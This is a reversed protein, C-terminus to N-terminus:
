EDAAEKREKRIVPEKLLGQKILVYSDRFARGETVFNGPGYAADVAPWQHLPGFTNRRGFVLEIAQPDESVAEYPAQMILADERGIVRVCAANTGAVRIKYLGKELDPLFYRIRGSYFPLGQATIDGAKLRKPLETLVAKKKGGDLRVGFNGLLYVAEIGCTKYYAYTIRLSNVGERICGSPLNIRDFCTDLWKGEAKLPIETEGLSIDTVHELDELVLSCERPVAEAEFRYEMAIVTLPEAPIGNKKEEYWPQLMEGGRWPIGLIDRLERDAKLVECCPLGRGDELTVRVMDLVCINEESLQYEYEEPLCSIKEWIHKEPKPCPRCQATIVLLKEEGAAFTLPIEMRGDKKRFVCAAIKGSMADWLEPYGDEELSLTVKGAAHDRDMNLLFILTEQGTKRMQVAVGSANKGTLKIQQASCSSVIKEKEFPIQQARRALERVKESPQVDVYGPAEGAFVLRGGQKRYEELLEWTTTRMTEMGAVLVTHYACKGVCLLGDRVSGHRAIIDEEGYDFDIHNDTLIRFTDRYREELRNIGERVSELGRFAGSRSRAWVSEIPNIVLVGCVPDADAMLVNIRSFYDELNRYEPYWASQFFISAPYDRKAEGKMTYWSLHPCRLNIGFLAQWDGVQKYDELDMQWGTCGYLESLVWKKDLQRAVSSIQKVIWWSDNKETLVDVGPYDMYEYFRMLSGQMVTQATLSDEHLVHGTFLLKNEHCWNQIPQAFNELFLEQCLEIYDRSAASLEEGTYRFFLEPLREKLDYGFRKKFEAFLDPTYPVATEKGGSFVSFLPGRHPEDTFIGPISEGLRAGCERAYREHTLRIYQEVAPRSMTDVYTFENYNDSCEARIIGFVVATEGKEPLEKLKLPRVKRMDGEEFVIAFSAVDKETGPYEAWEQATYERMELFSARYEETKTVMGGASGSPWRDEDYLWAEMGKEAAYDACRNILRFWEEGLYETELGTRSHMFFGSFGMQGFIDIQRLLEEETLKGNWAWFPRGRYEGAPNEFLQERDEIRM